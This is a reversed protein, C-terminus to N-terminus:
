IDLILFSPEYDAHAFTLRALSGPIHFNGHSERRHYHGQLITTNARKNLEILPLVVDRGRPMDETEEGPVVGPVSLHSLVLGQGKTAKFEDVFTMPDYGHSTPTFPLVLMRPNCDVIQPRNWVHVFRTIEELTVMPTLTSAGSGDECVDHNGVLWHSHIEHKALILAARLALQVCRFVVPGADPDCLDGLFFYQDVKLDIATKVTKAVALSIEDFRSIGFTVWDPHWDSSALVRM